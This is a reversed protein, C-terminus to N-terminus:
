CVEGSTDSMVGTARSNQASSNKSHSLLRASFLMVFVALFKFCFKMISVMEVGCQLKCRRVADEGNLGVFYIWLLISFLLITKSSYMESLEDRWTSVKRFSSSIGGVDRVERVRIPGFNIVGPRLACIFLLM